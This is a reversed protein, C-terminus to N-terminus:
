RRHYYNGGDKKVRCRVMLRKRYDGGGSFLRISRITNLASSFLTKLQSQTGLLNSFPKISRNYEL